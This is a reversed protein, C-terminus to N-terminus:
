QKRGAVAIELHGYANVTAADGPSLVTTSAHEEILAPGPIRMGAPLTDRAYVPCSVPKAANGLFVPLLFGLLYRGVTSDGTFVPYLAAVSGAVVHPLGAM